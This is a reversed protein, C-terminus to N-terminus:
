RTPIEVSVGAASVEDGSAVLIPIDPGTPADAPIRANIQFIGEPLGPAAGSYLVEARKSGVWVSTQNGSIGTGYISLISDQRLIAGPGRGTGTLTFIGPAAGTVRVPVRLNDAAIEATGSAIGPPVVFTTQLATSSVITAPIGGVALRSIPGPTFATVWANPAIATGTFSAASVISSERLAPMQTSFYAIPIDHDSIRESSAPLDANIHAIQYRSVYGLASRSVLIHDLAQTVGDFVYTYAQNPRMTDNLNLYGPAQIIQMLPDFQNMNYDGVSIVNGASERRLIGSLFEAQLRRKRAVVPTDANILSRLHNVVVVLPLGGAEARLIVPPRDNLADGDLRTDKGEQTFSRVSVRDRRVLLGVDIGGIDNGEQLYAEYNGAAAALSQLVALNDVEEVGIIEPSGLDERIVRAIRAIRAAGGTNSLRQLNMSAIAFENPARPIIGPAPPGSFTLAAADNDITYTNFGFDLPGALPGVTDGSRVDLVPRGLARSDVRILRSGLIGAPATFPRVGPVEIGFFVGAGVTPGAVRLVPASVRMGEVSELDDITDIAIDAPLPQNSGILRVTPDVIETLPASGPDSAPRFETVTGTVEVLSGRAAAAPPASSTFVFLGESTRADNDVDEPAAQLFFGNSKRGTVVGRTVVLKGTVPSEVGPGQIESIRLPLAPPPAEDCNQPESASNRPRPAASQFDDGCGNGRRIAATTNSLPGYSVLDANSGDNRVLAVRASTASMAITGSADPAPLAAAATNAGAAQQVLYYRGAPIVGDIPTIQWENGTASAYQVSWGNVNVPQSGRNLIEIFDNRFPAGANGGGGYIQSIVLGSPSQALLLAAHLFLLATRM